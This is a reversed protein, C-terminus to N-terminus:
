LEVTSYMFQLTVDPRVREQLRANAERAKTLCAARGKCVGGGVKLHIGGLSQSLKKIQAGKKGVLLPEMWDEIDVSVDLAHWQSLSARLADM